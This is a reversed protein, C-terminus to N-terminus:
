SVYRAIENTMLEPFKEVIIRVSEVSNQWSSTATASVGESKNKWVRLNSLPGFDSELYKKATNLNMMQPKGCYKISVEKFPHYDKIMSKNQDIFDLINGDFILDTQRNRTTRGIM